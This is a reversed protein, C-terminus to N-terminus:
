EIHVDIYFNEDDVDFEELGVNKLTMTKWEPTPFIFAFRGEAQTAKVPMRFNKVDAEWRYKVQLNNGIEKLEIQLRPIDVFHLYQDFFYTYDTKTEQNIFTILEQATITKYKFRDMIGHLLRIWRSDNDLINRFTHLMLSAKSYMDGINYHIHNVGYVGTVPEEGIVADMQDLMSVNADERGFWDEIIITEAYTAFAEHIWMDAIDKTTIANGWWEHASEHWMLPHTDSSNEATIKGICVGSQHEMPYLSEVLTFGDRPFPYKGFYKEFTRLMPIVQKFMRKARTLNYPMVYYDITLTDGSIYHDSFHVYKGISFTANYNNIPYSVFWEYRTHNNPMPSKRILRGNSIETFEAPVTIWIKMSDPEDSQHDKNPWWLSAGSGQCVVQLWPNGLSDQDWLIGGHMPINFDPVQPIGEYYVTIESQEGITFPKPFDVFVANYAREFALTKGRHEIRNIKMNEYLDIQMRTFPTITKFRITNSGKVAHEDLDIVVDLHYFNVDYCTRMPTLKGRLTDARTFGNIRNSIPKSHQKTSDVNPLRGIDNRRISDMKESKIYNYNEWFKEDFDSGIFSKMSGELKGIDGTTIPEPNETKLDTMILDMDARWLRDQWGRRRSDVLMEWHRTVRNLYWKGQHEQYAITYQFKDYELSAGVVKSMIAYAVGKDKRSVMRRGRSTLEFNYRMVALSKEDLFVKTRLYGKRAKPKPVIDIVIINRTGENITEVYDYDYHRFNSPNFPSNKAERYKILDESLSGRAGNSIGSIWYYLQAEKGFDISKKRGKLIRIQDNLKESAKFPRYIDLVAENFNLEFDGLVIQERYFATFQVASTDYNQPIHQLADKIIDLGSQVNVNVAALTVVAPQLEINLTQRDVHQTTNLTTYGICSIQLTDPLDSQQIKFVFEGEANTATGAGSKKLYLNAFPLGKKTQADLIRGTITVYKEQGYMSRSCVFAILCLIIIRKM